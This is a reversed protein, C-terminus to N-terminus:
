GRLFLKRQENWDAPLNKLHTLRHATADMRQGGALIAEIIDPALFGLQLTRSIKAGGGEIVADVPKGNARVIKERHAWANAILRILTDDPESQAATEDVLRIELGARQLTAPITITICAYAGAALDCVILPQIQLTLEVAAESIVVKVLLERLRLRQEAPENSRLYQLVVDARARCDEIELAGVGLAELEQRLRSADELFNVIGEAILRELDGAPLRRGKRRDGDGLEVYYRYRRGNKSAHMPTFRADDEGFVLGALMAPERAFVKHEDAIRSEELKAQVEEWLDEDLIADHLGPYVMGKHRIKGRYIPNQLMRYLAGRQMPAGGRVEGDRRKRRRSVIGEAALANALRDVAGIKLYRRFILRVTEAEAENVVLAKDIADYGLPLPGGMWMGKKKSAAIKDRTREAGVEREFQAFSLLMNLTLRGMSTTTNFQQTVSVFSVGHQDFADVIKAFDALSRTLRDVKYVVVSDIRGDRIDDLLRQLAPRQLTGGSTGGDDYFTPLEIWGEHRQSLIFASCAERQADLSNFAQDLGEDTSKRTYIACRSTPTAAPAQRNAKM